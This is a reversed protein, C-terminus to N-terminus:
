ALNLHRLFDRYLASEGSSGPKYTDTNFDQDEMNVRSFVREFDDIDPKEKNLWLYVERLLRMLAMFGNTKSLIIGKDPTNWADPWRKSVAEFYDWIIDTLDFSRDDIMFKRFILKNLDGDALAPTRGRMYSDRDRMPDSSIYRMLAQVFAAQTISGPLNHAEAGGLRKIRCHFPSTPEKELAVAIEHCLKQPSKKTALDYLDYVLSKNVKTQALNVTSFLYAESSVDIDVFISVNIEFDDKDYDALGAIRHQGDIVNALQTYPVSEYIDDDAARYPKLKLQSTVPDFEACRGKVSLLVATPFCADVTKTYASIKKVRDQSLPRQIGLYSEFGREGEMRRVDSITIEKLDKSNICGVYFEGMPQSIKICRVSLERDYYLEDLLNKQM